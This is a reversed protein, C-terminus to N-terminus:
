ADPADGMATRRRKENWRRHAIEECARCRRRRGIARDGRARWVTNARDYPHGNACVDKLNHGRLHAAPDVPVLHAPNVCLKRGCRHHLVLGPPVAAVALEWVARHARMSRHGMRVSGYGGSTRAGTWLWCGSDVEVIKSALRAPLM